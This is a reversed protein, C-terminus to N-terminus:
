ARNSLWSVTDRITEDLSRPHYGLEAAAKEHSFTSKAQLTYLSYRTFLPTQKRLHYYIEFIPATLKAIFLPLILHVQRARSYLCVLDVLEKISIFRNSLVYCEGNRGKAAAALIGEAVDRVDVFDYGGRVVAPLRGRMAALVLATMHTIGEDGPGIIGSPQVIVAHLGRRRVAELVLSAAEAKSKAYQGVVRDPSFSDVETIPGDGVPEPIAHVSNVYVLRANTELCKQIINETGGVNVRFVQPDPKSQISVIAACHIVVLKEAPSQTFIDQLTEMQTVDGHFVQCREGELSPADDGPLVLARVRGNASTLRKLVTSGLFGSAGTVVYVQEM